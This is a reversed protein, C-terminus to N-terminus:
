FGIPHDEEYDKDYLPVLESFTLNITYSVMTAEDDIFTSYTGLPTYDVVCNQLACMKILNISKHNDSTGGNIYQIRFINPAGLFIGNIKPAMNKKFARIIKKVIDSEDESRPSLKFTFNFPRLQPGQFLLEMNPNLIGGTARSLLGPAQVAQELLATLLLNQFQGGYNKVTTAIDQMGKGLASAFGGPSTMGTASAKVLMRQLENLEGPGWNVVNQDNIPAQIPLIIPKESSVKEYLNTDVSSGFKQNERASKFADPLKKYDMDPNKKLKWIEFRVHDQSELMKEPYVLVTPDKTVRFPQENPATPAPTSGGTPSSQSNPDTPAPTSGGGPTGQQNPDTLQRRLNSDSFISTAQDYNGNDRENGPPYTTFTWNGNPQQVYGSHQVYFKGTTPDRGAYQSGSVQSTTQQSVPANPNNIITYTKNAVRQAETENTEYYIFVTKGDESPVSKWPLKRGGHMFTQEKLTM